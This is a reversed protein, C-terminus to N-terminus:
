TTSTLGYSQRVPGRLNADIMRYVAAQDHGPAWDARTRTGCGCHCYGLDAEDRLAAAPLGQVGGYEKVLTL